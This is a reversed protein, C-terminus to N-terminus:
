TGRRSRVDHKAADIYIAIEEQLAQLFKLYDEPSLDEGNEDIRGKIDNVADELSMKKPM